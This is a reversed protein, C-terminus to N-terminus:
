GRWAENWGAGSQGAVRGALGESRVASRGPAEAVFIVRHGSGSLRAALRQERTPWWQRSPGGIVVIGDAPLLSAIAAGSSRCLCVRVTVDVGLEEALERFNKVGFAVSETPHDLPEAYPVVWPVLMVAAGGLGGTLASAAVLAERTGDLTTAVVCVPPTGTMGARNIALVRAPSRASVMSVGINGTNM